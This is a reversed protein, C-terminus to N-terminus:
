TSRGQRSFQDSTCHLILTADRWPLDQPVTFSFGAIPLAPADNSPEYYTTTRNISIGTPTIPFSALTLESGDYDAVKYSVDCSLSSSLYAMVEAEAAAEDALPGSTTRTRAVLSTYPLTVDVIDGQRLM